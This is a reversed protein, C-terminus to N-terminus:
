RDGSRRFASTERQHRGRLGLKILETQFTHTRRKFYRSTHVGHHLEQYLQHCMKHKTQKQHSTCHRAPLLSVPPLLLGNMMVHVCLRASLVRAHPLPHPLPSSISFLGVASVTHPFCFHSIIIATSFYNHKEEGLPFPLLFSSWKFRCFNSNDTVM